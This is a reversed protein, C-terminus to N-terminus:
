GSEAKVRTVSAPEIIIRKQTQDVFMSVHAILSESILFSKIRFFIDNVDM